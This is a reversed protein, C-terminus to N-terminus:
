ILIARTVAVFRHMLTGFRTSAITALHFRAYYMVVPAIVDRTIIERRRIRWRFSFIKRLSAFLM